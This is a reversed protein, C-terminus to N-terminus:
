PRGSTQIRTPSEVGQRGLSGERYPLLLAYLLSNMPTPVGVERGLRVVAGTLSDLEIPRGLELDTHMSAQLDIATAETFAMTREVVDPELAVGKARGVAEAERMAVALLERAEPIGLLTAVRCRAATTVGALSAIFLFKTWMEKAIDGSLEADIGAERLSDLVKRALDTEQGGLEGFVIRVVDGQQRIVGPSEVRTEIYTTGPLVKEQGVALGLDLHSDVGNQLPLVITNAAVMPVIAPIAVSNQYTKVTFLVLDVPDVRSTDDTASVKVTFDDARGRVRLGHARIAELHAGRAILTVDNGARALMGGYYGGVGGAGMVAIRM